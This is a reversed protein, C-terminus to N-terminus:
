NEWQVEKEKQSIFKLDDYLMNVLFDVHFKFFFEKKKKLLLFFENRLKM